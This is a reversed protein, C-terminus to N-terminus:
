EACVSVLNSPPENVLNALNLLQFKQSVQHQRLKPRVFWDVDLNSCRLVKAIGPAEVAKRLKSAYLRKYLAGLEETQFPNDWLCRGDTLFAACDNLANLIRFRFYHLQGKVGRKFLFNHKGYFYERSSSNEVECLRPNKHKILEDVVRKRRRLSLPVSLMYRLLDYDAFPTSTRLFQSQVFALAMHFKTTRETVYRFEDISSYGSVNVAVELSTRIDTLIQERIEDTLWPNTLTQQYVQSANIGLDGAVGSCEWGFLADSYYTSLHVANSKLAPAPHKLYQAIHCHNNGIQGATWPSLYQFAEDYHSDSLHFFEPQPFGLMESVRRAHRYEYSAPTAAYTFFRVDEPRAGSDALYLAAVRSDMGGSLGMIVNKGGYAAFKEKLLGDLGVVWEREDKAESAAAPENGFNWYRSVEMQQDLHLCCAAPLQFLGQFPTRMWIGTGFLLTEWFGAPDLEASGYAIIRHPSSSVVIEDGAERFYVPVTCFPDNYVSASGNEKQEVIIGKCRLARDRVSAHPLSGDDPAEEASIVTVFGDGRRTLGACDINLRRQSKNYVLVFSRKM